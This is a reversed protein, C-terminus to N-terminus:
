VPSDYRRFCENKVDDDQIVTQGTWGSKCKIGFHNNSNRSLTSNGDSSELCAQALIISAPISYENMEEVALKAFHDIYEQRSLKKFSDESAISKENCFLAIILIAIFIKYVM